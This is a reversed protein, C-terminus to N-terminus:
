TLLEVLKNVVPEVGNKTTVEKIKAKIQGEKAAVAPIKSAEEIALVLTESVKQATRKEKNQWIALAGAAVAIVASWLAGSFYWPSADATAAVTDAAHAALPIALVFLAALLWQIIRKSKTKM